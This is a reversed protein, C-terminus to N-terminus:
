TLSIKNGENEEQKVKRFTCRRGKYKMGPELFDNSSFPFEQLTLLGQSIDKNHASSIGIM